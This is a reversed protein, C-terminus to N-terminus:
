GFLRMPWLSLAPVFTVLLIVALCTLILPWGERIYDSVKTRTITTSTFMLVGFPPTIGGFTDQMCMVIGLHLPDIGMAKAIPVLLPPLIILAAATDIFMGMVIMLLNVMLLFVVPNSTTGTIFETLRHPLGEWTLYRAFMNAAALILMVTATNLTSEVLVRPLHGFKLKRYIFFGVLISYALTMAGCETPTIWGFRLSTIILIPLVLAWASKRAQELIEGVSARKQRSPPFRKAKAIFHTAIMLALCLLIGPSYGAMFMDGIAVNAATAYIILCIGPPIIPTIISSASTIAASFGKSYGRKVMEPVLIKSEFACDATASGSCGGMFTSLLVNVHGLGGIRHGVLTDALDLLSQSIGGYTMAVGAAIFLPIALMTFSSTQAIMGQVLMDMPMGDCLFLFYTLGSLILGFAVPINLAFFAFMAAIPLFEM